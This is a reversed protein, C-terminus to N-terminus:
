QQTAILTGSQGYCPTSGQSGNCEWTGSLSTSPTAMFGQGSFIVEPQNAYCGRSTGSCELLWFNMATTPNTSSGSTGTAVVLVQPPDYFNGATGTISGSSTFNDALSCSLAWSSVTSPGSMPTYALSDISSCPVSVINAQITSTSGGVTAAVTWQGTVAPVPVYQSQSNVKAANCGTLFLLLLCVSFTWKM